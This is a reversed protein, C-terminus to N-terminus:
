STGLNGAVAFQMMCEVLSRHRDQSLWLRISSVPYPLISTQFCANGSPLVRESGLVSRSYLHM